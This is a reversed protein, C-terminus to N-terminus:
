EQTENEMWEITDKITQRFTYKPKWGLEKKAKENTFYRYCFSSDVMDTTVDIRRNMMEFIRWTKAFIPRSWKPLTIRPIKGGTEEATIRHAEALTLNEGSLLYKGKRIDKKIISVIGEAVDRVDVVNTGGPTLAPVKNRRVAEIMKVTHRKDGPGYMLGPYVTVGEEGVIDDAKKKSIMYYKNKREAIKWDFKYDEDVCSDKDDMYGLAAVSSIHILRAGNEKAARAVNKTGEVNVKFLLDRDKRLFSVIGAAHIIIDQDKFAEKISEHDAIDAVYTKHKEHPRTDLLSTNAQPIERELTAILHQGLFGCGGTILINM